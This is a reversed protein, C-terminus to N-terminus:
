CSIIIYVFLYFILGGNDIVWLLSLIYICIHPPPCSFHSSPSLPHSISSSPQSSSFLPNPAPIRPTPAPLRPPLLFYNSSFISAIHPFIPSPPHPTLHSVTGGTWGRMYVVPININNWLVSTIAFLLFGLCCSFVM